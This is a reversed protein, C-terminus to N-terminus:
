GALTSKATLRPPAMAGIRRSLRHSPREALRHLAWAVPLVTLLALAAIGLRPMVAHFIHNLAVIVPVHALYLSFSIQGLWVLAPRRLLRQFAGAQRAMLILLVSAAITAWDSDSCLLMIAAILGAARQDPTPQWQDWRGLSLAAGTAFPLAFYATAIFSTGISSGLAIHSEIETHGAVSMAHVAGAALLLVIAGGPGHFRRAAVIAPLLLSLRLEHVLSWLVVDLNFDNDAPPANFDPDAGLLLAQRLFGLINPPVSWNADRLWATEGPWPGNYCLQYLAASLILAATTPLLLRVARRAAFIPPSTGGAMLGRTLVAGSLVFFFIVPIRGNFVPHTPLTFLVMATATNVEPLVWALHYFVVQLAAIGRLADLETLRDRAAAIPRDPTM